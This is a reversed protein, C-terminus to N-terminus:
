AKRFRELYIGSYIKESHAMYRIDNKIREEQFVAIIISKELLVVYEM